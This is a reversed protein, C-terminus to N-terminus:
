GSGQWVDLISCKALITLQEFDNVIKSFLEMKSSQYPKSYAMPCRIKLEKKAWFAYMFIHKKFKVHSQFSDVSLLSLLMKLSGHVGTIPGLIPFFSQFVPHLIMKVGAVWSFFRNHLLLFLSNGIRILNHNHPPICQLFFVHAWKILWVDLLYCPLFVLLTM